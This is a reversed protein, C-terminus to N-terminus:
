GKGPDSLVVYGRNELCRDIIRNPGEAVHDLDVSNAGVAMGLAATSGAYDSGGAAAGVAAGLVAGLLMAGAMQESADNSYDISAQTGLRRCESLNYSYKADKSVPDVVPEYLRPDTACASLLVPVLLLARM